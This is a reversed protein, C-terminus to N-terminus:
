LLLENDVQEELVNCDLLIDDGKPTDEEGDDNGFNVLNLRCPARITEEGTM